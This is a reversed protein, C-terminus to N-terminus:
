WWKMLSAQYLFNSGDDLPIHEYYLDCRIMEEDGECCYIYPIMDEWFRNIKKVGPAVKNVSLYHETRTCQLVSCLNGLGQM